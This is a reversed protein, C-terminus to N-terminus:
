FGFYDDTLNEGKHSRNSSPHEPRFHGPTNHENLFQRRTLDREAASQQHKRFEFGPKHGMDWPRNPDLAEKTIPDYVNGDPARANEWVQERVGKRYGSPRQYLKRAEPTLNGSEDFNSNATRSNSTDGSDSDRRIRDSPSEVHVGKSPPPPPPPTELDPIKTAGRLVGTGKGGMLEGILVAASMEMAGFTGNREEAEQWAEVGADWLGGYAEGTRKLEEGFQGAREADGQLWGIGSDILDLPSPGTLVDVAEYTDKAGQVMRDRAAGTTAEDGTIPLAEWFTKAASKAGEWKDNIVRLGEEGPNYVPGGEGSQEPSSDVSQPQTTLYGPTGGVGASNCNVTCPSDHRAVPLGNVKVNRQGELILVCGSDLSTGSVVHRGADGLIGQFLDGERYVERGAAIVNPSYRVPNELTASSDFATISSGVRCFDPFSAIAKWVSDANALHQSLGSLPEGQPEAPTSSNDDPLEDESEIVVRITPLRINEPEAM